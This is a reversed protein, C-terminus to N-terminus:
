GASKSKYRSMKLWGSAYLLSRATDSAWFRAVLRGYSLREAVTMRSLHPIEYGWRALEDGAARLAVKQDFLSMKQRWNGVTRQTVPHEVEFHGTPAVLQQALGTHDLMAPQFDEQLFECIRHISAEPEAVLQEYRVELYRDPGLWAGARRGARVNRAWNRMLYYTDYYWCDQGWKKLASLTSDRGDRVMHIFVANPFIRDLDAIWRVYSPGKDGWRAAHQPAIRRRYLADLLQTLTPEPLSDYFEDFDDVLGEWERNMQAIKVVLREVEKRTLQRNAYRALHPLFGTEEPIYIRTHTSLIFRLLTTGSRPNGVIFFPVERRPPDTALSPSEPPVFRDAPFLQWPM